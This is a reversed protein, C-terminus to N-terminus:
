NGGFWLGPKIGHAALAALWGDPGEPWDEARWTRYGGDRAFWFADM